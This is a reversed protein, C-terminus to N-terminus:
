DASPEPIDNTLDDIDPKEIVAEIRWRDGEDTLEIQAHLEDNSGGDAITRDAGPISILATSGSLTVSRLDVAITEGSSM